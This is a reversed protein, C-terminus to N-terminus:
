RCIFSRKVGKCFTQKFWGPRSEEEASFDGPLANSYGWEFDSVDTYSSPKEKKLKKASSVQTKKPPYISDYMTIWGFTIVLSVTLLIILKTKVSLNLKSKPKTEDETSAPSSITNTPSTIEVEGHTVSARFPHNKSLLNGSM